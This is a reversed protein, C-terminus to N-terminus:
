DLFIEEFSSEELSCSRSSENQFKGPDESIDRSIEQSSQFSDKDKLTIYHSTIFSIQVIFVIASVLVLCLISPSNRALSFKIKQEKLKEKQIWEKKAQKNNELGMLEKNEKIAWSISFEQNIGCVSDLANTFKSLQRQKAIQDVLTRYQEQSGVWM